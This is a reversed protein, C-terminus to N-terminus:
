LMDVRHFSLCAFMLSTHTYSYLCLSRQHAMAIQSQKMIMASRIASPVLQCYAAAMALACASFAGVSVGMGRYYYEGLQRPATTDLQMSKACEQVNASPFDSLPVMYASSPIKCAGCAKIDALPLYILWAYLPLLFVVFIPALVVFTNAVCMADFCRSFPACCLVCGRSVMLVAITGIVTVLAALGYLVVAAIYAEPAEGQRLCRHVAMAPFAHPCCRLNQPAITSFIALLFRHTPPICDAPSESNWSTQM